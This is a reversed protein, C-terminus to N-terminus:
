GLTLSAELPKAGGGHAGAGNRHGTVVHGAGKPGADAARALMGLPRLGSGAVAWRPEFRRWGPPRVIVEGTAVRVGRGFRSLGVPTSGGQRRGGGARFDRRTGAAM